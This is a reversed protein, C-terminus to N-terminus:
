NSKPEIKTNVKTLPFVLSLASMPAYLYLPIFAFKPAYIYVSTFIFMPAFCLHMSGFMPAHIYVSLCLPLSIVELSDSCDYLGESM